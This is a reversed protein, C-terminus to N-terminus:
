EGFVPKINYMTKLEVGKFNLNLVGQIIEILYKDTDADWTAEFDGMMKEILMINIGVGKSNEFSKQFIFKGMEDFTYKSKPICKVKSTM